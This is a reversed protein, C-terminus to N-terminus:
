EKYGEEKRKVVFERTKNFLDMDGTIRPDGTKRQYDELQKKLKTKTEAYAPDQALDKLQWPDNKLDYLEEAPRKQFVFPALHAVAPHKPHSVVLAEASRMNQADKEYDSDPKPQPERTVGGGYNQIYAFNADRITRFARNHPPLEGHWELGTVLASRWPEILGARDSQLLPMLSEASMSTPVTLGAAELMTPALDQLGVLNDVVRGPKIKEPWAIALPVNCGWEYATAKAKPPESGNDSTVIVFTNGLEGRADLADLIKGLAEDAHLIEYMVSAHYKRLGETDPWYGPVKIRDTTIGYKKALKATSSPSLPGHPESTGVWFWFPQDAKRDRLFAEFNAAYDNDSIQDEKKTLRIDNYMRGAMTKVHYRDAKPAESMLQYPAVSKGTWGVHYGAKALLGPVVPFKTPLYAQIFAGQELEWFNRGTLLAARSPACSPASCYARPFLVGAKAVREFAPTKLGSWGYIGRELASEDDTIFVLFNPRKPVFSENAAAASLASCAILFFILGSVIAGFRGVLRYQHHPM